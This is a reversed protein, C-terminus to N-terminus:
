QPANRRTCATSSRATSRTRRCNIVAQPSQSFQTLRRQLAVQRRLFQPLSHTTSCCFEFRPGTDLWATPGRASCRLLNAMRSPSSRPCSTLVPSSAAQVKRQYALSYAATGNSRTWGTLQLWVMARSAAAGPGVACYPWAARRHMPVAMGVRM